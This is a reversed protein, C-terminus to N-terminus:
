TTLCEDNTVLECTGPFNLFFFFVLLSDKFIQVSLGLWYKIEQKQM